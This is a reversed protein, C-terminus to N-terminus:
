NRKRTLWEKLRRLLEKVWSQRRFMGPANESSLDRQLRKKFSAERRKKRANSM